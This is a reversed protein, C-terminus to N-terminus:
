DTRELEAILEWLTAYMPPKGPSVNIAVHRCDQGAFARENDRLFGILEAATKLPSVRVAQRPQGRYKGQHFAKVLESDTFLCLCLNGDIEVLEPSGEKTMALFCPYTMVFPEDPM